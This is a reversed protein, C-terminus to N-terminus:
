VIQIMFPSVLSLILVLIVISGALILIYSLNIIIQLFKLSRSYRKKKRSLQDPLNGGAQILEKEKKTLYNKRGRVYVLSGPIMADFFGLMFFFDAWYIWYYLNTILLNNFPEPTLIFDFLLATFLGFLFSGIVTITELSKLLGEEQQFLIDNETQVPKGSRM